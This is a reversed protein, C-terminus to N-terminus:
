ERFLFLQENLLDKDFQKLSANAQKDLKELERLRAFEPNNSLSSLLQEREIMIQAKTAIFNKRGGIAGHFHNYLVEYCERRYAILEPSSSQINSIWGYIYPEPLCLMKRAKNDAAVVTQISPLQDWFPDIKFNKRQREYDVGLAECIPKIAIWWQGEKGLFYIVKGNFELFREINNKM